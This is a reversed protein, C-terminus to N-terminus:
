VPRDVREVSRIANFLRQMMTTTKQQSGIVYLADADIEIMPYGQDDRPEPWAIVRNREGITVRFFEKENQLPTFTGGKRIMESLDVSMQPGNFWSILLRYGPKAEIGKIRRLSSESM